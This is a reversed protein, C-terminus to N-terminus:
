VAAAAAEESILARVRPAVEGAYLAICRMMKDHALPGASYKLAFRTSAWTEGGNRAIKRAM